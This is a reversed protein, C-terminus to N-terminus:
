RSVLTTSGGGAAPKFTAMLAFWTGSTQTFTTAISGATSQIQYEDLDGNILSIPKFGSGASATNFVWGYGFILEGNVTTTQSGSSVATGNGTASATQDVPSVSALGTWESVHIELAATTSPTVTVTNAGGKCVPVYWIYITVNQTTDTVPGIAPTYTNGLTDSITLTSAPRAASGTVILFNGQTNPSTFSVSMNATGSENGNVNSQILKIGTTPTAPKISVGGLGFSFFSPNTVFGPNQAVGAGGALITYESWDGTADDQGKAYGGNVGTVNDYCAYWIADGNNAPTVPAGTCISGGPSDLSENHADFTITGGAIDAGSFEDVLVTTDNSTCNGNGGGLTVTFTVTATNPTIAGFTSIYDFYGSPGVLGSIPTFNWGPATLLM